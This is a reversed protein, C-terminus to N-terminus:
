GGIAAHLRQEDYGGGREIREVVCGQRMALISDCLRTIEALDSSAVLAGGGKRALTHGTPVLTM